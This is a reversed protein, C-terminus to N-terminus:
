AKGTNITNSIDACPTRADNHGMQNTKTQERNEM